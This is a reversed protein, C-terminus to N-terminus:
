FCFRKIKVKDTGDPNMMYLYSASYFLPLYGGRLAKRYIIKKGDPTWRPYSCGYLHPLFIDLKKYPSNTLKKKNSGDKDIIFIDEYSTEKTSAEYAVKSGDPSFRPNIAKNLLNPNVFPSTKKNQADIFCTGKGSIFAIIKEGDLSWLADSVSEIIFEEKGTEINIIYTGETGGIALRNSYYLLKKWDPSWKPWRVTEKNEFSKKTKTKMNYIQLSGGAYSTVYAIKKQDPSLEPDYAIEGVNIKKHKGTELDLIGIKESGDIGPIEYAIKGKLGMRAIKNKWGTLFPISLVVAFIILSKIFIKNNM